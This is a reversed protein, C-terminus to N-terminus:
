EDKIFEPDIGMGVYCATIYKLAVKGEEPAEPINTRGTLSINTYAERKAIDNDARFTFMEEIVKDYGGSLLMATETDSLSAGKSDNVVQNSKDRTSISSVYRNEGLATQMLKIVPVRLIMQEKDSIISGIDDDEYLFPITVKEALPKGVVEKMAKSIDELKFSYQLPIVKVRLIGTELFAIFEKDSMTDFQEKYKQTNLAKKIDGGEAYTLGKLIHNKAWAIAKPKDGNSTQMVKARAATMLEYILREMAGDKIVSMVKRKAPSFPSMICDARIGSVIGVPMKNDPLVKSTEGKLANFYTVKDAHSVKSYSQIIYEIVVEDKRIKKNAVKMGDPVKTPMRNLYEKKFKDAKELTGLKADGRKGYAEEIKTIFRRLSPSLESLNCCYYVNISKIVGSVGANKEKILSKDINDPNDGLLSDLASDASMIAHSFLVNNARVKEYPNTVASKVITDKTITIVKSKNVFSALKETASESLITADEYVEPASMFLVNMITGTCFIPKGDFEVFMSANYAIADKAQLRKGVKINSMLKMKNDLYKAKAAHREVQDLRFVDETGDDYKVFVFDETIDTIVGDKEMYHCFERAQHGIMEDYGNSISSPVPKMIGQMHGKQMFNLYVRQADDEGTVGPTVLESPSLLQKASLNEVEEKTDSIKLYGRASVINPDIPTQQVVGVGGTYVSPMARIGATSPDVKRKDLTIGRDLNLGGPGKVTMKTKSMASVIPNVTSYTQVNGLEFLATTVASRPIELKANKSGRKRAIHYQAYADAIVKYTVAEIIEANRLRYLRTDSDKMIIHTALLSNAYLLVDIFETPLNYHKLVDVNIPDVFLMQFSTVYLPLNGNGITSILDAAVGKSTDCFDAFTYSSLDFQKLGAFLIAHEINKISYKLYCDSFKILEEYLPNIKQRKDEFILEYEVGTRELVEDLGDTYALILAIPLKRSMIKMVSHALTADKNIGNLVNLVEEDEGIKNIFAIIFDGVSKSGAEIENDIIDLEKNLTITVGDLKGVMMSDPSDFEDGFINRNDENRFYIFNNDDKYIKEIIKSIRDFEITKSIDDSENVSGFKIYKVRSRLEPDSLIKNTFRNLMSEQKTMYKGSLEAFAKNYNFSLMVSDDFKVIPKLIRQTQLEMWTGNILMKNEELKPRDLNITMSKGEPDKFQMRLTERHNFKDSTDTLTINQAYLPFDHPTSFHKAISVIDKKKLTKEYTSNFNMFKNEAIDDFAEVDNFVEPELNLTEVNEIEVSAVEANIKELYRKEKANYKKTRALKIEKLKKANEVIREANPEKSVIADGMAEAVEVELDSSDATTVKNIIQAKTKEKFNEAEQKTTETEKVRIRDMSGDELKGVVVKDTKNFKAAPVRIKTPEDANDVKDDQIAKDLIEAVEKDEKTDELPENDASDDQTSTIEEDPIDEALFGEGRLKRIAVLSADVLKDEKVTYAESYVKYGEAYTNAAEKSIVSSTIDEHSLRFVGTRSYFVLTAKSRVMDNIFKRPELKMYLLILSALSAGRNKYLTPVLRGKSLPVKVYDLPVLLYKEKYESYTNALEDFISTLLGEYREMSKLPITNRIDSIIAQSNHIVNKEKFMKVEFKHNKLKSFKRQIRERIFKYPLRHNVTLGAIKKYVRKPTFFCETQILALRDCSVLIDNLVADFQAETDVVPFVVTYKNFPKANLRYQQRGILWPRINKLQNM